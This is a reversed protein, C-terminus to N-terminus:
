QAANSEGAGLFANGDDAHQERSQVVADTDSESSREAGGYASVNWARQWGQPAGILSGVPRQLDFQQQGPETFGAHVPGGPPVPQIAEAIAQRLPTEAEGVAVSHPLEPTGSRAPGNGLSDHAELYYAFGDAVASAPVIAAYEDNAGPVLAICEYEIHFLNRWCAQADGVTSREDVIRARRSYM